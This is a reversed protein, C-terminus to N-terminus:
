VLDRDRRAVRPLRVELRLVTARGHVELLAEDDGPTEATAEHNGVDVSGGHVALGTWLTISCSERLVPTNRRSMRVLTIRAMASAKSWPSAASTSKEEVLGHKLLVSRSHKTDAHWEFGQETWALQRSLLKVVKLPMGPGINGILRCEFNRELLETLHPLVESAM